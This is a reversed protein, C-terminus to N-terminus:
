PDEFLVGRVTWIQQVAEYGPAPDITLLETGSAFDSNASELVVFDGKIRLRKFYTAGSSSFVIVLQGELTPLAAKDIAENKVM